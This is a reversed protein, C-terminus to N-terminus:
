GGAGLVGPAAGRRGPGGMCEPLWWAPRVCGGAHPFAGQLHSLRAASRLASELHIALSPSFGDLPAGSRCRAVVSFTRSMRLRGCVLGSSPCRFSFHSSLRVPLRDVLVVKASRPSARSPAAVGASSSFSLFRLLLRLKPLPVHREGGPRLSSFRPVGRLPSLWLHAFPFRVTRLPRDSPSATQASVRSAAVEFSFSVSPFTKPDLVITRPAVFPPGPGSPATVASRALPPGPGSSPVFLSAVRCRRRRGARFASCVFVAHRRPPRRRPRACTPLRHPLSDVSRLPVKHPVQPAATTTSPLESVRVCRHDSIAPTALLARPAAPAASPPESVRVCRCESAAAAFVAKTEQRFDELLFIMRRHHRECVSIINLHAEEPYCWGL